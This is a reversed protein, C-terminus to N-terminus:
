VRPLCVFFVDYNLVAASYTKDCRRKFNAKLHVFGAIYTKEFRDKENNLMYKVIRVFGNSNAKTGGLFYLKSRLEKIMTLWQYHM